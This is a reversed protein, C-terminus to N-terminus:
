NTKNASKNGYSVYQKISASCFVDHHIKYETFIFM